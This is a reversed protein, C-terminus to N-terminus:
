KNMWRREDGNYSFEITGRCPKGDITFHGLGESFYYSGNDFHYISEADRVTDVSFQKGNSLTIDLHVKGDSHGAKNLDTTCVISVMSDVGGFMTTYGTWIGDVSPYDVMSINLCNGAADTALIWFHRDMYSWFRPGFSHDRAGTLAINHSVGDIVLTGEFVGGQEYHRQNNAQIESFLSKKWKQSAVAHATTTPDNDYFFDFVDANAKFTIEASASYTGRGEEAVDRLTGSYTIRFEKGPEICEVKLPYAEGPAYHERDNELFRKGNYWGFWVETSGDGRLGLRIYLTEGALSHATFFHSNNIHASSGEPHTYLDSETIDYGASQRKKINATILKKKIGYFM